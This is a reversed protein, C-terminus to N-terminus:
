IDGRGFVSRMRPLLLGRFVLEEVVPALFANAVVLAFGILNGDFYDKVRDTLIAAPLDRPLPGTPDIPLANVVGSLLVFLLAWLWVRGGIRGTKPDRPAWLWLAERVRAWALGDHASTGIM